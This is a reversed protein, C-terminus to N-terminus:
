YIMMVKRTKVKLLKFILMYFDLIIITVEMVTKWVKQILMKSHIKLVLVESSFPFSWFIEIILHQYKYFAKLILKKGLEQDCCYPLLVYSRSRNSKFFFFWSPSSLDWFVGQKWFLLVFYILCFLYIDFYSVQYTM